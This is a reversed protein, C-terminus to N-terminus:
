NIVYFELQQNLQPCDTKNFDCNGVARVYLMREMPIQSALKCQCKVTWEISFAWPCGSWNSCCGHCCTLCADYEIDQRPFAKHCPRSCVVFEKEFFVATSNSIENCTHEHQENLLYVLLLGIDHTLYDVHGFQCSHSTANFTFANITNSNNFAAAQAACVLKSGTTADM